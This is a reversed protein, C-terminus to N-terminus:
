PFKVFVVVHRLFVCELMMKNKIPIRVNALWTAWQEYSDSEEYDLDWWRLILRVLQPVMFCSFFLHSTTEVRSDCVACKISEIPIGRRSISFRTPLSDSKVNDILRRVLAVSFDGSGNIDWRWRDEMPLLRVNHMLLILNQFQEEEVGGRPSRRFLFDLSHHNRKSGVTIDKSRELAYIRSFRIKLVDGEVWRQDWFRALSDMNGDTGYIAKIVKVWLSSDQTHFRWIWKFMLARNLAYLSSVGLGGNDKSALVAKWKVWSAKNSDSSHGNFFHSRISELKRLVELPADYWSVFFSDFSLCGLKLAFGKIRANDVNIGMLKSKSMNIKLSSAKNFCELVSVLTNINCCYNWAAVSLIFLLLLINIDMIGLLGGGENLQRRVLRLLELSMESKEEVKLRVNSMMQELTFHTLPYRKALGYRGKQDRWVSAEVNPQEFMIKLTKLLYDNTYNKPETKKFKEKVLEARIIKFYPKNREFHIKYDVIPVKLALPTAEIYVDDDNNSVIQLHSKLEEAEEDMKQKKTIEKELSEGERKHGEVEVEKELVTVEENVEELFAQNYNYHNEFLPRIESYTMGKFYNIKFGAVNKLYIIMNKRAQAENLSKRKLAQYKMVADNLRESRKVQEM